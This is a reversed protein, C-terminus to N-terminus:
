INRIYYYGDDYYLYSDVFYVIETENDFMGRSIKQRIKKKYMERVFDSRDCEIYYYKNELKLNQINNTTFITIGADCGTFVLYSHFLQNCGFFDLKGNEKPHVTSITVCNIHYCAYSVHEVLSKDMYFDILDPSKPISFNFCKLQGHHTGWVIESETSTSCRETTVKLWYNEYNKGPCIDVTGSFDNVFCIEKNKNM